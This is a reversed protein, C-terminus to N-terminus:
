KRTVLVVLLIILLLTFGILLYPLLKSKKPVSVSTSLGQEEVTSEGVMNSSKAKEKAEFVHKAFDPTLDRKNGYGPYINAPTVSALGFGKAVFAEIITDILEQNTAVVRFVAPTRYIKSLVSNFPVADIFAQSDAEVKTIGTPDKLPFDKSFCAAESIVFYIQSPALKSNQIFVTVLNFLVDKDNVDLDVILNAPFNLALIPGGDYLYFKNKELFIVIDGGKDNM